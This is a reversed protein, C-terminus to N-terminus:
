GTKYFTDTVAAKRGNVRTEEKEHTLLSILRCLLTPLRRPDRQKSSSSSTNETGEGRVRAGGVLLKVM